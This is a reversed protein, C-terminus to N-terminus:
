VPYLVRMLDEHAFPEMLLDDVIGQDRMVEGMSNRILLVLRMSPATERLQEALVDGTVMPMLLDILAIDFHVLAAVSLVEDAAEETNLISAWVTHGESLLVTELYRLIAPEDDVVLIRM